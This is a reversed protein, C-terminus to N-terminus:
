SCEGYTFKINEYGINGWQAEDFVDCEDDVYDQVWNRDKTCGFIIDDLLSIYTDYNDLSQHFIIPGYEPNIWMFYSDEVCTKLTYWCINYGSDICNDYTGLEEFDPFFESIGIAEWNGNLIAYGGSLGSVCLTQGLEAKSPKNCIYQKQTTSCKVDNWQTAYKWTDSAKSIRTCQEVKIGDDDTATSPAYEIWNTYDLDTGDTWEFQGNDESYKLGIWCLQSNGERCVSAVNENDTLSHISALHSSYTIQCNQEAEEWSIGESDVDIIYESGFAIYHISMLIVLLYM